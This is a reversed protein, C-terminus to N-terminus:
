ITNTRCREVVTRGEKSGTTFFIRLKSSKIDMAVLAEERFLPEDLVEDESRSPAIKAPLKLWSLFTTPPLM